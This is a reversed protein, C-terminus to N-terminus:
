YSYDTFIGTIDENWRTHYANLMIDAFSTQSEVVAKLPQLFGREDMGSSDTINRAALGRDAIKLVKGAVDMMDKGAFQGGLGDRAASMRAEAVDAATVAQVLSAAEDLANEDYLLGVWLAPLACINNWLGSDAGRMELYGKLRVEPFATTIHDEFDEITPYQGDFGDLRGDLYDTFSKGSVDIYEDGRHLFYMPVDCIYDVWADYGFASDFVIEPVGCRDPDTDSWVHARTSKLGSPRGDKFPSNAFLATAVPQLALSTRFKRVMDAEDAYDLNVQVTCTRLMMDLGLSGKTPMYNRMIRYRGKPMWSIDDRGWLPQFGTGLMGLNLASTVAKMQKLHTGTESCTQHLNELPAGSLEFQGGPELTVSGGQGDKLGILVGKEEIPTMEFQDRLLSLVAGIGSPGEYEVPRFDSKHFLFKEHETGIRWESKSKAKKAFWDSMQQKSTILPADNNLPANM